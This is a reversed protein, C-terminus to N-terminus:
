ASTRASGHTQKSVSAHTDRVLKHLLQAEGAGDLRAIGGVRLEPILEVRDRRLVGDRAPLMKKRSVCWPPRSPSHRTLLHHHLLVIRRPRASRAALRAAPMRHPRRPSRPPHRAPLSASSAVCLRPPPPRPGPPARAAAP